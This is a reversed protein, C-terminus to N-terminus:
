VDPVRGLHEWALRAVWWSGPEPNQKINKNQKSMTLIIPDRCMFSYYLISNSPVREFLLVLSLLFLNLLGILEQLFFLLVDTFIDFLNECNLTFINLNLKLM